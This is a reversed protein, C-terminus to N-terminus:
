QASAESKLFRANSDVKGLADTVEVTMITTYAKGESQFLVLDLMLSGLPIVYDTKDKFDNVSSALVKAKAVNENKTMDIVADGKTLNKIYELLKPDAENGEFRIVINEIKGPAKIVVKDNELTYDRSDVLYAIDNNRAPEFTIEPGSTWRFRCTQKLQNEADDMMAMEFTFRADNDLLQDETLKNLLKAFDLTVSKAGSVSSTSVFGPFASKFKSDSVLDLLAPTGEKAKNETKDIEKNLIGRLDIPLETVKIQFTNVGEPVTFVVKADMKTGIEMMTFSPNAEWAVSPKSSNDVPTKKCAATVLLLASLAFFFIRKM